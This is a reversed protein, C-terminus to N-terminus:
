IFNNNLQNDTLKQTALFKDANNFMYGIYDAVSKFNEAKLMVDQGDNTLISMFNRM